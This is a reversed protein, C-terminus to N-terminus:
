KIKSDSKQVNAGMSTTSSIGAAPNRSIVPSSIEASEQSAEQVQNAQSAARVRAMLDAASITDGNGVDAPARNASVVQTTEEVSEPDVESIGAGDREMLSELEQILWAKDTKILHNKFGFRTGDKAIFSIYDPFDSQFARVKEAVKKHDLIVPQVVQNVQPFQNPTTM